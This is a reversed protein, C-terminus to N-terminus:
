KWSSSGAAAESLPAMLLCWDGPLDRTYRGLRALPSTVTATAYAGGFAPQQDPPVLNLDLGFNGNAQRTVGNSNGLLALRHSYVYGVSLITNVGFQHEVAVNAQEAYPNRYNPEFIVISPTGGSGTPFSDLSNPYTM